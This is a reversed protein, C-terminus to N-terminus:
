GPRGPRARDSRDRRRSLLLLGLLAVGAGTGGSSAGCSCGSGGELPSITVDPEDDDQDCGDPIGDADQDLADDFGLCTDAMNDVEGPDLCDLDQSLIPPVTPEGFGDGDADVYCLETGDCDEDVGDGPTETRNCTFPGGTSGIDSVSGDPDLIALDGADILSSTPGPVVDTAQCDGSVYAIQPDAGDTSQNSAPLPVDLEFQGSNEFFANYAATLAGDGTVVTHRSSGGSWAILTNRLDVSALDTSAIAAGDGFAQNGLLDVNRLNATGGAVFLAGGAQEARNDQFVSSEHTVEGASWFAGGRGDLADNSAADNACFHNRRWPGSGGALHVAGGEAAANNAFVSDVVSCSSEPGCYLAGGRRQSAGGVFWTRVARLTGDVAVLGGSGNGADAGHIRVDSLVVTSYRDAFLLGGNGRMAGRRLTVRSLTLQGGAVRVARGLDMGSITLQEVQLGVGDLVLSGDGPAFPDSAELVVGQRDLGRITLGDTRVVVREAYTGPALEIVDGPAAVEVAEALTAHPGAEPDVVLTGAWASPVSIMWMMSITLISM